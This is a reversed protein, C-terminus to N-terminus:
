PTDLRTLAARWVGDKGIGLVSQEDTRNASPNRNPLITFMGCFDTRSLEERIEACADSEDERRV